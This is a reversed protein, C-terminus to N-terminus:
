RKPLVVLEGVMTSHTACNIKFVGPKDATFTERVVHGRKLTFHRDYGRISTPHSEGNIGVFELTVEDGENVLIQAPQYVYVSVEWRGSRDPEKVVYGGGSPLPSVPFPEQAVNAGGKPEVAAIVFHRPEAQVSGPASWAAAVAVFAALAALRSRLLFNPRPRTM